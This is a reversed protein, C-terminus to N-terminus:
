QGDPLIWETIFQLPLGAKVQYGVSLAPFRSQYTPSVWGWTPDVEGVGNLIKGARVVQLIPKTLTNGSSVKLQLQVPGHHSELHISISTNESDADVSCPWDPLLWHLRAVYLRSQSANNRDESLKNPQLSDVIRWQGPQDATVARQHIVGAQRYGDQRSVIRRVMSNTDLDISVNEAQAWDLWLFRGARNMQDKGDITITNHVRTSALANDWPPPDNYSFSGADLAFNEGRWWLDLHLQDAHGPRSNFQAARLFAWSLHDPNNLVLPSTSLPTPSLSHTSYLSGQLSSNQPTNTSPSSHFWLAM